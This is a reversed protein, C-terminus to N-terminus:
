NDNDSGTAAEPSDRYPNVTLMIEISSPGAAQGLPFFYIPDDFAFPITQISTHYSFGQEPDTIGLQVQAVLINGNRRIYPTFQVTVMLNSGELRMGIPTGQMTIKRSTESWITQGNESVRADINIVLSRRRLEPIARDQSVQREQANLLGGAFIFIVGILCLPRNKM